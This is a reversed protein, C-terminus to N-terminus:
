FHHQYDLSELEYFLDEFLHYLENFYLMLFFTHYYISM